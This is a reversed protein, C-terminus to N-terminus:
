FGHKKGLLKNIIKVGDSPYPIDKFEVNAETGATQVFITGYGFLSEFYGSSKITVDEIKELRAETLEKYLLNTFDVDVVRRNTVIGVNFYWNVFSIWIYSLIFVTGFLNILFLQNPQFFGAIFFNSSYLIFAFLLAYILWYIQTFPHARLFLIVQEGPEYTEFTTDPYTMYSFLAKASPNNNNEM